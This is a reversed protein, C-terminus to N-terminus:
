SEAARLSVRLANNEENVERVTSATEGDVIVEIPVGNLEASSLEATFPVGALAFKQLICTACLYESGGHARIVRNWLVSPISVDYRYPGGCGGCVDAPDPQARLRAIVDHTEDCWACQADECHNYHPDGKDRHAAWVEALLEELQRIVAETTLGETM